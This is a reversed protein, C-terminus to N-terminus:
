FHIYQQVFFSSYKQDERSICQFVLKSFLQKKQTPSYASYPNLSRRFALAQFTLKVNSRVMVMMMMIMEMMIMILMMMVMMMMMIMVMAMAMVTMMVMMMVMVMVLVMVMVMVIVLMILRLRGEIPELM